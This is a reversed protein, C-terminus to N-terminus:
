VNFGRRGLAAVVVQWMREGREDAYRDPYRVVKADSRLEFGGLVQRSALAMAAQTRAVAHDLDGLPAEILLADHVPACIRVGQETAIVCAIRLMESGNGQMPFNSLSRPNSDKSVRVPWGFVTTLDDFLLARDVVNQNWAWYTAFARRHEALLRAAEGVPRNIRLALSGAGMSYQVALVCSKYQDREARHSAKTADAPVAGALKAFALYPDGSQYAALMNQDGSLAAAIGFEQQSWDIYAIGMDPEPKILGRIWASPGFVNKSTSPTNRGSSAGFASLLVRNRGDAGVALKNLRMASLSTRLERLPRFIPFATAMTKFITDDLSLRGSELRPWPIGRETLYQEFRDERFRTGEFVGFDKDVESIIEQKMDEWNARLAGLLAMDIPVGIQEIRAAAAMYRARLRAQPVHIYPVMLPFLQVLADVDTACYDLLATRETETWPGGRLALARMEDKQEALISPLGFFKLCELLGASDPETEIGNTLARFEVYLDLMHQPPEWDLALYCGIEASNYYAVVLTDDGGFPPVTLALLDDRWLRWRQGTAIDHAVLCIPEPTGGPENGFEFDICVVHKYDWDGVRM